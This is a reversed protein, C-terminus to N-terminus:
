KLVWVCVNKSRARFARAINGLLVRPNNNNYACHVNLKIRVHMIRVGSGCFLNIKVRFYIFDQQIVALGPARFLNSFNREPQKHRKNM